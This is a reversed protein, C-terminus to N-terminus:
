YKFSELLLSKLKLAAEEPTAGEGVLDATKHDSGFFNTSAYYSTGNDQVDCEVNYMMGGGPKLWFSYSEVIPDMNCQCKQCYGM